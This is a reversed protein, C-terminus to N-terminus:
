GLNETDFWSSSDMLICLTLFTLHYRSSPWKQIDLVGNEEVLGKSKQLLMYYLEHDVGFSNFIKLIM